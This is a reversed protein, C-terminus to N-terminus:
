ENGCEIELLVKSLLENLKLCNGKSILENLKLCGWVIELGEDSM